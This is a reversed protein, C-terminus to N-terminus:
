VRSVFKKVEQASNLLGLMRMNWDQLSCSGSKEGVRSLIKQMKKCSFDYSLNATASSLFHVTAVGVDHFLFFVKFKIDIKKM